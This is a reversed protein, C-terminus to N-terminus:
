GRSILVLGALALLIGAGRRASLEEGFVLIGVPILLLTVMANSYLAAVSIKWGAQYALLFGAELGIIVVGLAYSAWSLKALESGLALRGYFLPLVVLSCILAVLYTVALSLLPNADPRIARQATHYLLNSVITLAISVVYM